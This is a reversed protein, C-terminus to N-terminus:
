NKEDSIFSINLMSEQMVYDGDLVDKDGQEEGDMNILEVVMYRGDEGVAVINHAKDDKSTQDDDETELPDDFEEEQLEDVEDLEDEYEGEDEEDQSYVEVQKGDIVQVRTQRGVKLAMAQERSRSDPDHFAMHRILNGKHRFQRSCTPCIHTKEKPMPPIYAPNHYINEHRRLLQKQRFAQNCAGCHYPKQDTHVLM